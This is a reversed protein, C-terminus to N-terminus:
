RYRDIFVEMFLEMCGLSYWFMIIIICRMKMENNDLSLWANVQLTNM